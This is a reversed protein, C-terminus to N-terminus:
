QYSIAKKVSRPQPLIAKAGLENFAIKQRKGSPALVKQPKKPAERGNDALKVFYIETM